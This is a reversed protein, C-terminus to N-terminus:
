AWRVLSAAFQALLKKSSLGDVEIAINGDVRM